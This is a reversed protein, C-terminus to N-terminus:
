FAAFLIHVLKYVLYYDHAWKCITCYISNDESSGRSLKSFIFNHIEEGFFGFILLRHVLSCILLQDRFCHWPCVTWLSCLSSHM